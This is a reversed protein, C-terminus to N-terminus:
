LALLVIGGADRRARRSGRQRICDHTRVHLLPARITEREDGYVSYIRGTHGGAPGRAWRTTTHLLGGRTARLGIFRSMVSLRLHPRSPRGAAHAFVPLANFYVTRGLPYSDARTKGEGIRLSHRVRGTDSRRVPHRRSRVYGGTNEHYASGFAMALTKPVGFPRAWPPIPCFPLPVNAGGARQPTCTLPTIVLRSSPSCTHALRETLHRPPRRSAAGLISPCRISLRNQCLPGAPYSAGNPVSFSEPRNRVRHQVSASLQVQAGCMRSIEIGSVEDGHIAAGLYLRPGDSAGNILWLPLTIMSGDAVGRGGRCTQGCQLRVTLGAM